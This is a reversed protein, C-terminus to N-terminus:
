VREPMDKRFKMCTAIRRVHQGKLDPIETFIVVQLLDNEEQASGSGTGNGLWEELSGKWMLSGVEVHRDVVIIADAAVNSAHRDLVERRGGTSYFGAQGTEWRVMLEVPTDDVIVEGYPDKGRVPWMLAADHREFTEIPPM